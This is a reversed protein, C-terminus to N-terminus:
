IEIYLDSNQCSELILNINEVYNIGPEFNNLTKYTFNGIFKNGNNNAIIFKKMDMNVYDNLKILINSDLKEPDQVLIHYANKTRRLFKYMFEQINYCVSILFQKNLLERGIYAVRSKVTEYNHQEHLLIINIKEKYYENNNVFNIISDIKSKTLLNCDFIIDFSLASEKKVKDTDQESYGWARDRYYTCLREIVYFEKENDYAESVDPQFKNIRDHVCSIQTKEDQDYIAFACNKCNTNIKQDQQQSKM